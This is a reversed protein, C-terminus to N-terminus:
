EQEKLSFGRTKLSKNATKSEDANKCVCSNKHDRYGDDKEPPSQRHMQKSFAYPFLFEVFSPSTSIRRTM